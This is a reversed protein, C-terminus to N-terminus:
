KGELAEILKEADEVAIKGSQLLELIKRQSNLKEAAIEESIESEVVDELEQPQDEAPIVQNISKMVTEKLNALNTLDLKGFGNKVSNLTANLDKQLKETDIEHKGFNIDFKFGKGSKVGEAKLPTNSLLIGGRINEASIKVKGSAKQMEIIKFGAETSQAYEGPLSINIKGHETRAQLDYELKEPIVLLIRGNKNQFKFDGAPIQVFQYSIQGNINSVNAQDFSCKAVQVLGNQSQIKLEGSCSALRMSGNLSELSSDGQCEKLRVAGNLSTLNIEGQYKEVNSQGNHNKLQLSGSSQQLLVSGDQSEITQQGAFNSIELRASVNKIQLALQHPLELLFRAKEIEPHEQISLKGNESNESFDLQFLKALEEEPLERSQETEVELRLVDEETGIVKLRYSEIEIEMSQLNQRTHEQRYITEKM